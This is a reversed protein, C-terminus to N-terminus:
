IRYDFEVFSTNKYADYDTIGEGINPNNRSYIMDAGFAIVLAICVAMVAKTNFHSLTSDILPVLLYVAAM